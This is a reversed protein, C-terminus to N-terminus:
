AATLFCHSSSPIVKLNMLLHELLSEPAISDQYISKRLSEPVKEGFRKEYRQAERDWYQLRLRPDAMEFVPNMLAKMAASSSRPLKAKCLIRWAELGNDDEAQAVRTAADDKCLHLLFTSVGAAVRRDEESLLELKLPVDLEDPRM